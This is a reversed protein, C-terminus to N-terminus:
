GVGDSGPAALHVVRWSTLEDLLEPGYGVGSGSCRRPEASGGPAGGFVANVKVTGADLTRTALQAHDMRPTLVTAALGYASDNARELGEAFSSIVQVPAVPGFTEEQMVEMGHDVEALVTPPYFCGPRDLRSGGTLLQAGHELADVVQAHVHEVQAEDVLPGMETADDDGAGVTLLEARMALESLFREAIDSHVYIREVSTCIQGANAFAGLAAQAAAWGPDVGADIILPDNGGLELVAKKGLLACRVAIARGTGVSGTHLVVSVREDDVLAAGLTGDGEASMVAGPPFVNRVLELMRLAALPARESPKCVVTNGVVLNAAVGQATIAVPDNWPTIVAAVGRPVHMMVDTAGWSGCLTRGRHLPGLEAFQRMTAVAARVGERSQGIPKGMERTQLKALEEAHREVVDAAQRVLAARTDPSRTAWDRQAEAAAEVLRLADDATGSRISGVIDGTAPDRVDIPPPSPTM